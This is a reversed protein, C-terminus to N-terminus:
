IFKGSYLTLAKMYNGREFAAADTCNQQSMSGKLQQVSEYEREEMWERLGSLIKFVQSSGEEYVTSVIM